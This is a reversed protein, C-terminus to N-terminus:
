KNHNSPASLRSNALAIHYSFAGITVNFTAEALSPDMSFNATAVFFVAITFRNWNLMSYLYSFHTALKISKRSKTNSSNSSLGLATSLKAGSFFEFMQFHPTAVWLPDLNDYKVRIIPPRGVAGPLQGHCTATNFRNRTCKCHIFRM